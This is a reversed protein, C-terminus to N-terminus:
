LIDTEDKVRSRWERGFFQKMLALAQTPFKMNATESHTAVTTKGTGPPGYFRIWRSEESSAELM